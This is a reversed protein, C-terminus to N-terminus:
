PELDVAARYSGDMYFPVSEHLHVVQWGDAERRFGLTMRFWLGEVKGDTKTGGLRALGHAFGTTGTAFLELDRLEFKLGGTWTDFWDQLGARGASASVLPPALTFATISAACCATAAAANKDRMAQVWDGVLARLAAEDENDHM